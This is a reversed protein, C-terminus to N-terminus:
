GGISTTNIIYPVLSTTGNSWVILTFYFLQLGNGLLDHQAVVQFFAIEKGYNVSVLTGYVQNLGNVDCKISVVKNAQEMECIEQYTHSVDSVSMTTLDIYCHIVESICDSGGVKATGVIPEGQANYAKKGEALNEPTVTSDSIDMFVEGSATDVRNVGM